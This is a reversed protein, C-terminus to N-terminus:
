FVKGVIYSVYCATLFAVTPHAYAFGQLIIFIQIPWISLQCANGLNFIAIMASYKCSLVIAATGFTIFFLFWVPLM